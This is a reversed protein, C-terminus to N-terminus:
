SLVCVQINAHSDNDYQWRRKLVQVKKKLKLYEKYEKMRGKM